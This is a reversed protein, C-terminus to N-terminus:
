FIKKMILPKQSQHYRENRKCEAALSAPVTPMGSLVYPEPGGYIGCDVGGVGYGIAPSGAKLKYRGDTSGTYKFVTTM